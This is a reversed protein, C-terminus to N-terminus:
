YNLYKECIENHFHNEWCEKFNKLNIYNIFLYLFICFIPLFCMIIVLLYCDNEKEM